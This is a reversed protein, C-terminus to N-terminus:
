DKINIYHETLFVLERILLRFAQGEGKLSIYKQPKYCKGSLFSFSPRSYDTDPECGNETVIDDHHLYSKKIMDKYVHNSLKGLNHTHANRLYRCFDIYNICNKEILNFTDIIKSNISNLIEKTATLIDVRRIYAASEERSDGLVEVKLGELYSEFISFISLFESKALNNTLINMDNNINMFLKTSKVIEKINKAEQEGFDGEMRGTFRFYEIPIDIQFDMKGHHEHVKDERILINEFFHSTIITSNFDRIFISYCDTTKKHTPWDFKFGLNELTAIKLYDPMNAAIKIREEINNMNRKQHM